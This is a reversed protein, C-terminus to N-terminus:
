PTANFTRLVTDAPGYTADGDQHARISIAGTGTVTITNGSISIPGTHSYTLPLGSSASAGTSFIAGKVKDSIPPFTITQAVPPTLTIQFVTGGGVGGDATVGYLKGDKGQIVGSTPDSHNANFVSYPYLFPFPFLTSLVRTPMLRFVTGDNQSFAYTGTTGYFNGDSAQILGARPGGSSSDFWYLTTLISAPTLKFATGYGRGAPPDSFSGGYGSGLLDVATTGYFNGDQGLILPAQPYAGNEPGTFSVLTTLNGTPTVKFITGKGYSTASETSGGFTTTGYFNGDKGQLLAAEPSGGNSGTFSVLTHIVGSPTMKFVTGSTYATTAGNSGGKQTTGYFNGDTGQILAAKPNAGNAGTFSALTTLVGAPTMKFVTGFGSMGGTSTTGYFNGDTGILLAALPVSGNKGDFTALTTLVGGTTLSYVTGLDAHGGLITTGYFLGNAAQVLAAEPRNGKLSHFSALTTLGGSSTMKFVTGQDGGGGSFTTGYFNGDLGQILGAEPVVETEGPIFESGNAGNFVVLFTLVGAPSVRFITGDPNANSSFNSTIGYFNGDRGQVLGVNPSAGKTTSTFSCLTTLTGTPTIKFVTGYGGVGFLTTTGYFNGDSGQVLPAEPLLGITQNFSALTTIVGAPTVKFVRGGGGINIDSTTGYFNGDSGQILPTQPNSGNKGIFNALISVVGAPTVKFVTGDDYTGGFKTTGYFNGDTGQIVGTPQQGNTYYGNTYNFSIFRTLVGAPTMKFITGAGAAGGGSTTGYFNGDSAQILSSNPSLGTSQNFSALTTLTGTSTIKFVTGSGFAGGTATTGYFDGDRGQMVANPRTGNPAPVFNALLKLTDARGPAFLTQALLLVLLITRLSTKM